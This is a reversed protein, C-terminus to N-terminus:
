PSQRRLNAIYSKTREIVDTSFKGPALDVFAQLERIAGAYDHQSQLFAGYNYHVDAEKPATRVADEYSRRANATDGIAKYEGALRMKVVANTPDLKAAQFYSSMADAHRGIAKYSDALNIWLKPDDGKASLGLRYMAIAANHNARGALLAGYDNYLDPAVPPKLLAKEYLDAAGDLNGRMHEAFARAFLSDGPRLGVPDVVVRVNPGSSSISQTTPLGAAAVVPASEAPATKAPGPAPESASGRAPDSVTSKTAGTKPTADAVSEDNRAPPVLSSAAPAVPASTTPTTEPAVSPSQVSPTVPVPKTAPAHTIAAASRREASRMSIVRSAGVGLIALVVITTGGIVAARNPGRNEKAAPYPFFSEGISAPSNPAAHGSRERQAEKLADWILSM